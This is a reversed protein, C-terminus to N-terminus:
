LLAVGESATSGKNATSGKKKAGVLYDDCIMMSIIGRQSEARSM